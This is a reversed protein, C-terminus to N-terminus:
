KRTWLYGAVATTDSQPFPAIIQWNGNPKQLDYIVARLHKCIGPIHDPNRPPRNSGPVRQYPIRKGQLSKVDHNEWSFSHRYDPCNCRLLVPDDATLQAIYKYNGHGMDIQFPTVESPVDSVVTAPFHITQQWLKTGRVQSNIILYPSATKSLKLDLIEAKGTEKIEKRYAKMAVILKRISWSKIKSRAAAQARKAKERDAVTSKSTSLKKPPTAM